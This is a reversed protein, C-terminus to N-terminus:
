LARQEDGDSRTEVHRSHSLKSPLSLMLSSTPPSSFERHMMRGFANGSNRFVRPGGLTAGGLRAPTRLTQRDVLRSIPPPPPPPPSSTSAHLCRGAAAATTVAHAHTKAAM